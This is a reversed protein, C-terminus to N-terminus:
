QILYKNTENGQSKQSDNRLITAQVGWDVEPPM